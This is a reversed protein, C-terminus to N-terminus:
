QVARWLIFDPDAAALLQRLERRLEEVRDSRGLPPRALPTARAVLREAEELYDGEVLLRAAVRYLVEPSDPAVLALQKLSPIAEENRGDMQYASALSSLGWFDYPDV